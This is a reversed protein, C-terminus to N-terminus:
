VLKNPHSGHFLVQMWLLCMTMPRTLGIMATVWNADCFCELVFRFKKFAFM